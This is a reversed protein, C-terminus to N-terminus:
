IAQQAIGHSTTNAVRKIFRFKVDQFCRKYKKIGEVKLETKWSCRGKMGNIKEIANKSDLEFVM